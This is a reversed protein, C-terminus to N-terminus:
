LCLLFLTYGSWSVESFLFIDETKFCYRSDKLSSFNFPQTSGSLKFLATSKGKQRARPLLALSLGVMTEDIHLRKLPNVQQPNIRITLHCAKYLQPFHSRFRSRPEWFCSLLWKPLGPSRSGGYPLLCARLVPELVAVEESSESIRKLPSRSGSQTNFWCIPERLDSCFSNRSHTTKAQWGNSPKWSWIIAQLPRLHGM